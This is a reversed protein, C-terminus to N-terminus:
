KFTRVRTCARAVMTEFDDLAFDESPGHPGYLSYLSDLKVDFQMMTHIGYSDKLKVIVSYYGANNEIVSVLLEHGHENEIAAKEIHMRLMEGLRKQEALAAQALRGLERQEEAAKRTKIGFM